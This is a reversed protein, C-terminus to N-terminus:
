IGAIATTGGDVLLTAGTIYSADSSALFAILGVVEDVTAIRKLPVINQITQLLQPAGSMAQTVM